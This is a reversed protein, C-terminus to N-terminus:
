YINKHESLLDHFDLVNKKLDDDVSMIRTLCFNKYVVAMNLCEIVENMSWDHIVNHIALCFFERAQQLAIKVFLVDPLRHLYLEALDWECALHFHDVCLCCADLNGDNAAKQVRDEYKTLGEVLYSDACDSTVTYQFSFGITHLVVQALNHQVYFKEFSVPFSHFFTEDPDPLDQDGRYYAFLPTVACTRTADPVRVRIWLLMSGRFSFVICRQKQDDLDFCWDINTAPTHVRRGQPDTAVWVVCDRM